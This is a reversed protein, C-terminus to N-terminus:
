TTCAAHWARGAPSPLDALGADIFTHHWLQTAAVAALGLEIVVRWPSGARLGHVAGQWHRVRGADFYGTRALSEPSLLQRVYAPASRGCFLDFPAQFMQKRRWAISRPLWREAALRLLYKEQLGRLKLNPALRAACDAVDEDLFPYRTEVISHMAVRDGSLSLLLGALHTRQGVALSQNLPHWRRMRDPDIGLHAWPEYDALGPMREGYFQLRALSVLGYLDHWATHAGVARAARGLSAPNFDPRGLWRFFARRAWGGLPVGPVADLLGLLRHVKFWPYGALTEDAGEGTLV